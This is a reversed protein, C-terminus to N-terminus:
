RGAPAPVGVYVRAISERLKLAIADMVAREIDDPRVLEYGLALKGATVRYRLLARVAVPSEGVFPRINLAFEKPIQLKGKGATAATEEVWELQTDGSHLRKASRFESSTSAYFSLAIELLDAAAPDTIDLESVEIHRAFSEQDIMKSNLARWRAWEPTRTLQLTARHDRWAAHEHMGDDDDHNHRHADNLIAEVRFQAQDVWATTAAEDYFEAVYAAFSAVDGVTVRGRTWRPEDLRSDDPEVVELTAGRPVVFAQRVDRTPDVEAPLACERATVIIAHLDSDLAGIQVEDQVSM